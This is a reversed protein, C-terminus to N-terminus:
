QTIKKVGYVAASTALVGIAFYFIREWNNATKEERLAKALDDNRQSVITIQQDKLDINQKLWVNTKEYSDNLAKYSDRELLQIRVEKTKSETFLYGTYPAKDGQNLFTVDEAYCLNGILSLIVFVNIYKM